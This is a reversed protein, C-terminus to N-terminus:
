RTVLDSPQWAGLAKLDELVEVLPLGVVNTYSGKVAKVFFAGKGQAAYAGAKDLPEASAVYAKIEDDSLVKFTVDTVVARQIFLKKEICVLCYATIVQHTIGSLIRLMRTADEPSAPKGLIQPRTAQNLVVITDAGLVLRGPFREAIVKAKRTAIELAQDQPSLAPNSNEDASSPMIAFKVGASELLDKRRPSQSALILEHEWTYVAEM